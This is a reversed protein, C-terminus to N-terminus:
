LLKAYDRAGYIVRTVYATKEAICTVIDDVDEHAEKSVILSYAM